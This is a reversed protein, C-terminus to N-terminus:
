ILIVSAFKQDQKFVSVNLQMLTLCIIHNERFNIEFYKVKIARERTYVTIPYGYIIDRFHKLAWVIDLAELHTVSYKSEDSSLARKAYAIVHPRQSEPKQMLVAGVGISSGNPCLTFPEKYDPFGLGPTHTWAHKLSEFAQREADDIYM